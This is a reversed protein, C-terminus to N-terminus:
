ISTWASDKNSGSDEQIFQLTQEVTYFSGLVLWHGTDQANILAALADAVTSYREIDPLVAAKAQLGSEVRVRLDDASLARPGQLGALKWRSVPPLVQVVKEVAKDALMGLLIGDAQLPRTALYAAAQENHAVDLTLRLGSVHRWQQLRGPVRLRQLVEAVEAQPLLHGLLALAQIATAVNAAPIHALPLHWQMTMDDDANPRFDLVLSGEPTEHIDYDQGRAVWLGGCHEVTERASAPASKEGCVLFRRPRAISCKEYAIAELSNGLWAEHDLGISTVISLDAEVINVADLRGGLGIELVCADLGQQRFWALAALTGYEFYTLPTEGRAAEVLAFSACLDADSIDTGHISVRENYRLIHPSNYVGVRMGQRALLASLLATTTGKGNTGGVLIVLPAPRLCDLRRAVTLVRELGLEIDVSHLSEMYALWQEVSAPAAQDDYGSM